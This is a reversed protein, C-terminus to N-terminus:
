LLSEDLKCKKKNNEDATIIRLNALCHLGCATKCEFAIIHDVEHKEERCAICIKM